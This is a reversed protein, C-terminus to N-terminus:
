AGGEHGPCATLPGSYGCEAARQAARAAREVLGVRTLLRALRAHAEGRQPALFEDIGPVSTTAIRDLMSAGESEKGNLIQAEALWTSAHMAGPEDGAEDALETAATYCRMAHERLGFRFYVHGIASLARGAIMPQDIDLATEACCTWARIADETRGERGLVSGLVYLTPVALDTRQHEVALSLASEAQEFAETFHGHGSAFSALATKYNVRAALDLDTRVLCARLGEEIRAADIRFPRHAKIVASPPTTLAEDIVVVRARPHLVSETLRRMLAESDGRSERTNLALVLVIPKSMARKDLVVGLERIPDGATREHADLAYLARIAAKGLDCEGCDLTIIESEFTFARLETEIWHAGRAPPAPYVLVNSGSPRLFRRLHERAASLSSTDLREYTKQLLAVSLSLQTRQERVVLWRIATTSAGVAVELLEADFTGAPRAGVVVRDVYPALWRALENLARVAGDVTTCTL